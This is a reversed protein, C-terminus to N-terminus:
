WCLHVRDTSLRWQARGDKASRADPILVLTHFECGYKVAFYSSLLFPRTTEHQRLLVLPSISKRVPLQVSNAFHPYPKTEKYKGINCICQNKKEQYRFHLLIKVDPIGSFTSTIKNTRVTKTNPSKFFFYDFYLKEAKFHHSLDELVKCSRTTGGTSDTEWRRTEPIPITKNQKKEQRRWM